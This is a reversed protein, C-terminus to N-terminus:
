PPCDVFAKDFGNGFIVDSFEYEYAGIDAQAGSARPYGPGRQDVTFGGANNGEDIGRSQPLLAHTQTPGGNHRLPGLLPCVGTITGAPLSGIANANPARVLNNTGAITVAHVSDIRSLDNNHSFGGSYDTNNAIMNSQLNVTISQQIASLTLAGSAAPAQAPSNNFAITSNRITSPLNLFAGAAQRAHNGSITSNTITATAAGGSGITYIGGGTGYANNASITSNTITVNAGLALGGGGQQNPTGRASNNSITSYKAIFDGAVVAGGGLANGGSDLADADNGTISSYFLFLKGNAAIAGGFANAGSNAPAHARCKTVTAHSLTVNAASYICGGGVDGGMAAHGYYGRAIKLGDIFLTGTGAHLLVSDSLASGEIALKSDGPGHLTLGNQAIYLSGTTLSITSCALTSMDVTDGSLTTPAAVVNRLTGAGSDGCSSVLWTSSAMAAPAALAFITAVCVALPRLRSTPAVCKSLTTMSKVQISGRMPTRACM